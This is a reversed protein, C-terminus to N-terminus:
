RRRRASHLDALQARAWAVSVARSAVAAGEGGCVCVSVCVVVGGWWWWWGGVYRANCEAHEDAYVATARAFRVAEQACLSRWARAGAAEMAAAASATSAAARAHAATEAVATAAASLLRDHTAFASRQLGAACALAVSLTCGERLPAPPASAAAIINHFVTDAAAAVTSGAPPLTHVAPPSPGPACSSLAPATDSRDRSFVGVVGGCESLRVCAWNVRVSCFVFVRWCVVLARIFLCVDRYSLWPCWAARWVM